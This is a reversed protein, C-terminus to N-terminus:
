KRFYALALNGAYATIAGTSSPCVGGSAANAAQGMIKTSDANLMNGTVSSISMAYAIVSANSSTQAYLTWGAPITVTGQSLAVTQESTNSTSAYGGTNAL